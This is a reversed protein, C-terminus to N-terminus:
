RRRCALRDIPASSIRISCACKPSRTWRCSPANHPRASGTRIPGDYICFSKTRDPTFYSHVWTVGEQANEGVVNTCVQAGEANQPLGLGQPFSREVLYRPMSKEKKAIKPPHLAGLDAARLGSSGIRHGRAPSGVLNRAKAHPHAFAATSAALTRAGSGGLNADACNTWKAVCTKDHSMAREKVSVRLPSLSAAPSRGQRWFGPIHCQHVAITGVRLADAYREFRPRGRPECAARLSARVSSTPLGFDVSSRLRDKHNTRALDVFTGCGTHPCKM